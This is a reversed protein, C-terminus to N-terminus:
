PNLKDLDIATGDRPDIALRMLKGDFKRRVKRVSGDFMLVNFFREFQGGLKPLAKPTVELDAPKAWHVGRSAEALMITNSLGDTVQSITKPGKGQFLTGPGTFLQYYTSAPDDAGRVPAFVAPAKALLGKNEPSDWAKTRDIKLYLAEQEVFPLVEVRWSLIAKGDKDKIDEPFKKYAAHYNHVAVGIQKMNNADTIAPVEDALLKVIAALDLEMKGSGSIRRGERKLEVARVADSYKAVLADLAKPKTLTALAARAAAPPMERALYQGMRALVLGDKADDESAFDARGTFAIRGGGVDVTFMAKSARLAPALAPLLMADLERRAVADDVIEEVPRLKLPEEKVAAPDFPAEKRPPTDGGKKEVSPTDEPADKDVAKKEVPKELEKEFKRIEDERIKRVEADLSRAYLSVRYATVMSHKGAAVALEDALPHAKGGKALAYLYPVMGRATGVVLTREDAFWYGRRSWDPGRTVYLTKGAVKFEDSKGLRGKVADTDIDKKMRLIAIGGDTVRRLALTAREVGTPDVGLDRELKKLPDGAGGALKFLGKVEPAALLDALRYSGFALSDHTVLRLDPPLEDTKEDAAALLGALASLACIALLRSM